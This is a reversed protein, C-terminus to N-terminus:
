FRYGLGIGYFAPDVNLTTIWAGATSKVETNIYVKKADLNLFWKDSLRINMGIQLVAGVSDREVDIGAPLSVSTIHTYNLGLGIYPRLTDDPAFHYQLLLTSPLHKVAGIVTGDRLVDHEQPITLALEAAWNRSFFYSVDLQPFWKNNLEIRGGAVEPANGNHVNMHLARARVMWPGDAAHAVASLAFLTGLLTPMGSNKKM